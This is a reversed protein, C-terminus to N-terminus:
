YNLHKAWNLAELYLIMFRPVGIQKIPHRNKMKDWNANEFNIICNLLQHLPNDVGLLAQTVDAPLPLGKLIIDIKQNLIIDIKSFMGTFFYESRKEPVNLEIAVLEMLKGRILSIKILEANEVTQLDKLLMISIWQYLEKMGLYTLAHRISKITHKAGFYVGNALKLFKYSLGLDTEFIKVIQAYEPEPSILEEIIHILNMNLSAIDKANIVTPKSFFYGQFLHYGMNVAQKYEERTEIKEALFRIKKGYKKLLYHQEDLSVTPFELKIIDAIEILPLNNNDGFVFDDLAILYGKSKIKKCADVTAQTLDERELVEVVIKQNPLLLPVDSDILHKSFNIFANTGGTLDQLGIVLFTNYILETTAQDDDIGTFYNENGQRYLLEYGYINQKRDFIPQRAIFVNM